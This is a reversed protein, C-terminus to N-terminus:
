SAPAPTVTVGPLPAPEGGFGLATLASQGLAVVAWSRAPGPGGAAVLAAYQELCAQETRLAETSIAARRTLDPPVLYSPEAAVPDGGGAMILRRLDDRRALHTDYAATLGARYSQPGLPAARGALLGFAHVAAHEGALTQQLADLDTTV